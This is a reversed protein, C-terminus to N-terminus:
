TRLSRAKSLDLATRRAIFDDLYSHVAELSYLERATALAAAGLRARKEPNDLLEVIAGAFTLPEDRVLCNVGDAVGQIRAGVTTTVICAGQSLAEQMKVSTGTGLPIPLVVIKSRSYFPRLEEVFGPRELTVWSPLTGVYDAAASGINGVVAVRLPGRLKPMVERLLFHLGRETSPFRAGVFLIDIDKGSNTATPTASVVRICAELFGVQETAVGAAVYTQEDERSIALVGDYLALIEREAEYLPGSERYGFRIRTLMRKISTQDAYTRHIRWYVDIPDLIAKSGAPLATILGAYPAYTIVSLDPAFDAALRSFDERLQPSLFVESSFPSIKGRL